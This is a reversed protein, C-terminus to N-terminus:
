ANKYSLLLQLIGKPCILLRLLNTTYLFTVFAPNLLQIAGFSQQPLLSLQGPIVQDHPRVAEPGKQALVAGAGDGRWVVGPRAVALLAVDVAASGAVAPVPITLPIHISTPLKRLYSDPSIISCAKNRIM